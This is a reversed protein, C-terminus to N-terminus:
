GGFTPDMVKSAHAYIQNNIKLPKEEMMTQIPNIKLQGMVGQAFDFLKFTGGYEVVTFAHGERSGDISCDRSCVYFSSVGSLLWLNHAVSAFEVCAACSENKFDSISPIIVNDDQDFTLTAIKNRKAANNTTEGFYSRLTQEISNKIILGSARDPNQEVNTKLTDFFLHYLTKDDIVFMRRFLEQIVIEDEPAFFGNQEKNAIAIDVLADVAQHRLDADEIAIIKKWADIAQEEQGYQIQTSAFTYNVGGAFQKM